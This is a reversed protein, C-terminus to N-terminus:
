RAKGDNAMTAWPGARPVTVPLIARRYAVLPPSHTARAQHKSLNLMTLTSNPNSCAAECAMSQMFHKGREGDIAIGSCQTVPGASGEVENNSYYRDNYVLSVCDPKSWCYWSCYRCM